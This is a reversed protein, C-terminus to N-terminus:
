SFQPIFYFFSRLFLATTGNVLLGGLQQGHQMTCPSHYTITQNFTKFISLDKDALFQASSVGCFCHQPAM